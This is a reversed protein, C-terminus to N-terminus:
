PMYVTALRTLYPSGGGPAVVAQFGLDLGAVSPTLPITLPISATGTADLVGAPFPILLGLGLQLEGLGPIVTSTPGALGAVISHGAAPPGDLQLHFTAGATTMRRFEPFQVETGLDPYAAFAQVGASTVIVGVESNARVEIFSGNLPEREMAGHLSSAGLLEAGQHTRAVVTTRHFRLDLPRDSPTIPTSLWADRRADFMALETDDELVNVASDRNSWPIANASTPHAVFQGSRAAFGWWTTFSTSHVLAGNRSVEPMVTAAGAPLAYWANRIASYLRVDTQNVNMAAAATTSLALTASSLSVAATGGTLGSYATVTQPDVLLVMAGSPTPAAAQTTVFSTWHPSGAGFCFHQFGDPSAHGAHDGVVPTTAAANTTVVDFTGSIGSFGCLETSSKFLAVDGNALGPGPTQNLTVSRWSGQIASFGHITNGSIVWALTHSIGSSSPVAGATAATWTGLPASYGELNTGDVVMLGNREVLIAATPAVARSTWGGVLGSMTWLTSGDRVALVVDNRNTTPNVITHANSVAITEFRGTAGSYCTVSSGADIMLWDNTQRLAFVGSVPFSAWSRTKSSFAHVTSSTAIWAIKGLAGVQGSTVGPESQFVWSSPRQASLTAALLPLALPVALRLISRM